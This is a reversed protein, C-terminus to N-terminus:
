RTSEYKNRLMWFSLLNDFMRWGRHLDEPKWYVAHLVDPRKTSVFLNFAQVKDLDENLGISCAALQMLQEDWGGPEDGPEFESTKFDCVVLPAYADLKGGFGLGSAFSREPQWKLDPFQDRLWKVVPLAFDSIGGGGLAIEIEAHIATGRDRAKAGQAQSDIEVRKSFDEVSEGGVRPLTLASLLLQNRKWRELGPQAAERIIKTVSPRLNLKRADRLTTPRMAGNKAETEYAPRGDPYYWHGAETAFETM